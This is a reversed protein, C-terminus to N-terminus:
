IEVIVAEEVPKEEEIGGIDIDVIEKVPPIRGYLPCMQDEDVTGGIPVVKRHWSKCRECWVIWDYSLNYKEMYHVCWTSNRFSYNSIDCEECFWVDPRPVAPTYVPEVSDDSEEGRLEALPYFAKYVRKGLELLEKSKNQNGGDYRKEFEEMITPMPIDLHKYHNYAIVNALLWAEPDEALFKRKSKLMIRKSTKYTARNILAMEEESFLSPPIELRKAM